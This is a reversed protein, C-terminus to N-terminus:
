RMARLHTSTRHGRPSKHNGNIQLREQAIERLRLSPASSEIGTILTTTDAGYDFSMLYEARALSAPTATTLAAKLEPELTAQAYVSSCAAFGPDFVARAPAEIAPELVALWAPDQAAVGCAAVVAQNKALDSDLSAYYAAFQTPLAIPLLAIEGAKEQQAASRAGFAALVPAAAPATPALYASVTAYSADGLGFDDYLPPHVDREDAGLYGGAPVTVVIPTGPVLHHTVAAGTADVVSFDFPAIMQAGPDALTLTLAQDAGAAAETATLAPIEKTPLSALLKQVTPEDLPFSRIFQEGTASGVAHAALLARLGDFFATEGVTARIQTMLWASHQYPGSTYKDLGHLSADVIADTPKFGFDSAWLRGAHAADRNAREAESEFITALGEKFWVDEFRNMTVWDGFWHHALEHANLALDGPGQGSTEDDFTITANEMGGGYPLLVVSYTEWPYPMIESNFTTMASAVQELTLQPDLVLGRRYWVSLPVLGAGAPRDTHELEGAAFAMLYAPIPKALAYAVVRRGDVMTDAGRTGNAVVDEGADIAMDVSWLARDAPDLDTVLWYLARDPESDTYVVRSQVPDNAASTTAVLASASTQSSTGDSVASYEVTFATTASVGVPTVDVTLTHKDKDLDFALDQAGAHVRTVAVAADLEVVAGSTTTDLVMDESATLTKSAWDWSGHLGYSIADYGRAGACGPVCSAPAPTGGDLNDGCGALAAVLGATVFALKM